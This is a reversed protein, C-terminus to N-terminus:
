VVKEPVLRELIMLTLVWVKNRKYFIVFIWQNNNYERLPKNGTEDDRWLILLVDDGNNGLFDNSPFAVGTEGLIGLLGNGFM